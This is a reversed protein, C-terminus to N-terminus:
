NPSEKNSFPPSVIVKGLDKGRTIIIHHLYKERNEEKIYDWIKRLAEQFDNICVEDYRKNEYKGAKFYDQGDSILLVGKRSNDYKKLYDSLQKYENNIADYIENTIREVNLEEEPTGRVEWGTADKCKEGYDFTGVQYDYVPQKESSLSLGLRTVEIAYTINDKKATFDVSKYSRNPIIKQTEKFANRCLFEFARVEALIDIIKGDANEYITLNEEKFIHNFNKCCSNGFQLVIELRQLDSKNIELALPDKKEEELLLLNATILGHTFCEIQLRQEIIKGLYMKILPYKELNDTIIEKKTDIGNKDMNREGEGVIKDIGARGGLERELEGRVL